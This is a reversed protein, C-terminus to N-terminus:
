EDRGRLDVWGVTGIWLSSSAANARARVQASSNTNLLVPGEFNAVGATLNKLTVHANTLGAADDNVDPSSVYVYNNASAHSFGLNVSARVRIGTPVTLAHLSATTSISSGDVDAVPSKWLFTDASQFFAKINGSGDTRVAGVRRFGSYGNPMSPAAVSTSFLIDSTGDSTKRIIFCHYWTSNAKSGTDLGNGNNGASWSGSSQLRKTMSSTNELTDINLSDRAVGAAFDIDTNPTTGNNSLKLGDIYGRPVSCSM